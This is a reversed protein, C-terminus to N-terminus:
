VLYDDDGYSDKLLEEKLIKNEELLRFVEKQYSAIVWMVLKRNLDVDQPTTDLRDVVEQSHQQLNYLEKLDM